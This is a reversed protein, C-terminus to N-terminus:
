SIESALCPFVLLYSTRIEECFAIKQQMPKKELGRFLLSAFPLSKFFTYQNEM